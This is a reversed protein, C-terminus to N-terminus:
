SLLLSAGAGVVLLGTAAAIRRKLEPAGLAIVLGAKVLSNSLAAIVIAGTAIGPEVSGARASGTVSLTIADVDTLGALAAVGYLGRGPFYTEVLKVVLLVLAFVAAFRIASTLSFPNKLPVDHRTPAPTSSRQYCFAAAAASLVALTLMPVLLPRLLMPGVLAVMVLIRVFMVAWALLIGAAFADSCGEAAEADRSRRAFSLTVATSSVLGGFLGTLPVGRGAGLMRTAVYGVLSLGSILIVLWWMQYPNLAGWPDLTRNPLVPLVIFTCILLTLAAYLDDRGIRAVAGHLPEKFALVAATAIALAVALHPEGVIAAGGLLYVVLAAVESTLGYSSQTHAFVAYGAIVVAAVLAGMAAFIWASELRQSLWAGLAGALAILIFTRLGAIDRDSSATRKKERDIGVLAGIFLAIAFRYLPDLAVGDPM